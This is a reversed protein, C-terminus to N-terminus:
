QAIIDGESEECPLDKGNCNQDIGDGCIEAAGPYISADNDNCDGQAVTYGDNDADDSQAIIINQPESPIELGNCFGASSSFSIFFPISFVCVVLNKSLFNKLKM